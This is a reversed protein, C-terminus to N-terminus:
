CIDQVRTVITFRLMERNGPQVDTCSSTCLNNGSWGQTEAKVVKLRLPGEVGTDHLSCEVHSMRDTTEALSHPQSDLYM